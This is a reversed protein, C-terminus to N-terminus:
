ESAKSLLHCPYLFLLLTPVLAFTILLFLALLGYLLHDGSFYEVDGALYLFLRESEAVNAYHLTAPTLLDVSVSQIKM